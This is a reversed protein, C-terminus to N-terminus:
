MAVSPFQRSAAPFAFFSEISASTTRTAASLAGPPAANDVCLLAALPATTSGIEGIAFATAIAGAPLSTDSIPLANATGGHARATHAASADGASAIDPDVVLGM